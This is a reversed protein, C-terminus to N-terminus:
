DRAAHLARQLRRRFDSRRGLSLDIELMLALDRISVAPQRRSLRLRKIERRQPRSRNAM